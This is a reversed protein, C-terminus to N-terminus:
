ACWRRRRALVVLGSLGGLLLAFTGPEPVPTVGASFQFGYFTALSFSAEGLQQDLMTQNLAFVPDAEASCSSRFGILSPSSGAGLMGCGAQLDVIYTHGPVLLLEVVEDFKLRDLHPVNPNAVARENLIDAEQLSIDPASRMFVAAGGTAEPSTPGSALQSDRTIEGRIWVTVPVLALNVPPAAIEALHVEYTLQAGAVARQAVQGPEVVRAASVSAVPRQGLSTRVSAETRSTTASGLRLCDDIATGSQTLSNTVPGCEVSTTSSADALEIAQALSPLALAAIVCMRLLPYRGGAGRKPVCTMQSQSPYESLSQDPDM